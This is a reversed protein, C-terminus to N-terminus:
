FNNIFHNLILPNFQVCDIWNSTQCFQGTYGSQCNCSYTCTSPNAVCNGNNLCPSSQCPTVDKFYVSFM